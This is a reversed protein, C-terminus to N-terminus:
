RRSAEQSALLTDCHALLTTLASCPATVTCQTAFQGEWEGAWGGVRVSCTGCAASSDAYCQADTDHDCSDGTCEEDVLLMPTHRTAHALLQVLEDSVGEDLDYDRLLTECVRVALAPEGLLDTLRAQEPESPQLVALLATVTDTELAHRWACDPCMDDRNVLHRSTPSYAGWRRALVCAVGCLAAVPKRIDDADGHELAHQANTIAVAHIHSGGIGMVHTADPPPPATMTNTM